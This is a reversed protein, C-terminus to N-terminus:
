ANSGTAASGKRGILLPVEQQQGGPLKMLKMRQLVKRALGTLPLELLRATPMWELDEARLTHKLTERRTAFGQVEVYYNTGTIAHRVRLLPEELLTLTAAADQPKLQPLELMNAMLSADKPRRQLLVELGTVARRRTTLAYRVRQSQMPTRKLTPHEGRTRCLHFVPCESCRPARPLCIVAGLEMMAQNHDGPNQRPVLSNAVTNLFEVMQAGPTEPLGLIRLLVREVNGDVVAVPEDFAISAIAASTYNGIGPLRRLGVATSPLEGDYEEMVLKATRHLMRARRYYGLGSWHALVEEEPALALSIITPFRSLFRVYHELVANVRTQQLMIESLWTLYPNRIGRWPLVRANQQYWRRLSRVFDTRQAPTLSPHALQETSTKRKARLVKMKHDFDVVPWSVRCSPAQFFNKVSAAM